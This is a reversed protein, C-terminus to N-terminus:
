AVQQQHVQPHGSGKADGAVSADIEVRVIVDDELEGGAGRDDEVVRAAEARHADDRAGIRGGIRRVDLRTHALTM